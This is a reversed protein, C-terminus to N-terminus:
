VDTTHRLVTMDDTWIMSSLLIVSYDVTVDINAYWLFVVIVANVYM